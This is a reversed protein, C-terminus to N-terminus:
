YRKHVTPEVSEAADLNFIHNSIINPMCDQKFM